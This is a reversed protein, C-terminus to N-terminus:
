YKRYIKKRPEVEVEYIILLKNQISLIVRYGGIHLPHFPSKDSGELKQVKSWPNIKLESIARIIEQAIPLPIKKQNRKAKNSYNIQFDTM